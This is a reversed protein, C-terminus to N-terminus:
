NILSNLQIPNDLFRRNNLANLSEMDTKDIIQSKIEEIDIDSLLSYQTEISTCQFANKIDERYEKPFIEIISDISTFDKLILGTSMGNKLLTLFKNYGFGKASKINRIKSGKISLLLRFYMESNFISLDWPNEDRIISQVTEPISNTVILNSYKRKIYFVLFNPDLMYLTDFIDGSIIVNKDNSFKSIIEPIISGDFSKTEIFYCKPVYLLILKIESIIIKNLIEGMSRFQPNKVYRNKYYSRYFKNYVIMQQNNFELSTFYFYMTVDCKEKRFYSRYHAMLNIIASELEIVVKQKNFNILTQLNRQLTLNNLVSELNIFVNVKDGEKITYFSDKIMQDLLNWKLMLSGASIGVGGEYSEM